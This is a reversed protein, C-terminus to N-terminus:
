SSLPQLYLLCDQIIDVAESNILNIKENLTHWLRYERCITILWFNKICINATKKVM